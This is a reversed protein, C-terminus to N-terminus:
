LELGEYADRAAAVAAMAVSVRTVETYETLLDNDRYIQATVQPSLSIRADNILLRYRCGPPLAPAGNLVLWETLTSGDSFTQRDIRTITM